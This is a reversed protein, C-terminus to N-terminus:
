PDGDKRTIHRNNAINIAQLCPLRPEKGRIGAAYYAVSGSQLAVHLAKASVTCITLRKYRYECFGVHGDSYIFDKICHFGACSGSGTM